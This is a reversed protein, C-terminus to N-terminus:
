ELVLHLHSNKHYSNTIDEICSVKGTIMILYESTKAITVSDSLLTKMDTQPSPLVESEIGLEKAIKVIQQYNKQSKSTIVKDSGKELFNKLLSSLYAYDADKKSNIIGINM